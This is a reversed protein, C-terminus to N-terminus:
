GDRRKPVKVNIAGDESKIEGITSPPPSAGTGLVWNTGTNGNPASHVDIDATYLSSAPDTDQDIRWGITGSDEAYLVYDTGELRYVALADVEEDTREYTGTGETTPDGTVQVTVTATPPYNGEGSVNLTFVATASDVTIDFQAAAPDTDEPAFNLTGAASADAAIEYPLEQSLDLSFGRAGASVATVTLPGDSMNVLSIATSAPDDPSVLGFGYTSGTAYDTSEITVKMVDGAAAVGTGTLNLVFPDTFGDVVVDLTDSAEGLSDPDFSLSVEVTGAEAVTLPLPDTTVGFPADTALSTVTLDSGLFNTIVATVTLAGAEIDVDGFDLTADYGYSTEDVVIQVATQITVTPVFCGALVIALFALLAARLATRTRSM